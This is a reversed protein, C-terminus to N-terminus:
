DRDQKSLSAYRSRKKERPDRRDMRFFFDTASSLAKPYRPGFLSHYTKYGSRMNSSAQIAEYFAIERVGRHDLNVPKLVFNDLILVPKKNISKGGVQGVMSQAGSIRFSMWRKARQAAMELTARTLHKNDYDFMPKNGRDTDEAAPADKQSKKKGDKVKIYTV